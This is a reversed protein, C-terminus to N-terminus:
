PWKNNTQKVIDCTICWWRLIWFNIFLTPAFNVLAASPLGAHRLCALALPTQTAHEGMFNPFIQAMEQLSLCVTPWIRINKLFTKNIKKRPRCIPAPPTRRSRGLSSVGSTMLQYCYQVGSIMLQYCYQVGSIMLQYCYQVGSIMLQYCYEVSGYLVTWYM